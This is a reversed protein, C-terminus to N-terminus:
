VIKVFDVMYFHNNGVGTGNGHNFGLADGESNGSSYSGGHIWIMLAKPGKKYVSTKKSNSDKFDPKEHDSKKSNELNEDNEPIEEEAEVDPVPRHISVRLCDTEQGRGNFNFVYLPGWKITSMVGCSVAHTRM